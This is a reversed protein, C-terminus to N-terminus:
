RERANCGSCLFRFRARKEHYALWQERIPGEALTWQDFGGGQYPCREKCLPPSISEKGVEKQFDELINSFKGRNDQCHDVHAPECSVDGGSPKGHWDRNDIFKKCVDCPILGYGRRRKAELIQSHVANRYAETAIAKQYTSESLFCHKIGFDENYGNSLVFNFGSHPGRPKHLFAVVFLGCTKRLFGPHKKFVDLLFLFDEKNVETELATRTKIDNIKEKASATTYRQGALLHGRQTPNPRSRKM